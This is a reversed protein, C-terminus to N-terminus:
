TRTRGPLRWMLGGGGGCSISSRGSSFLGSEIRKALESHRFLEYLQIKCRMAEDDVDAIARKLRAHQAPAYRDDSEILEALLDGHLSSRQPPGLLEASWLSAARLVDNYERVLDLPFRLSPARTRQRFRQVRASYAGDKDSVAGPLIQEIDPSQARYQDMLDQVDNAALWGFQEQLVALLRTRARRESDDTQWDRAMKKCWHRFAFFLDRAVDGKANFYHPQM